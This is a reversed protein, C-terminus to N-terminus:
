SVMAYVSMFNIQKEIEMIWDQGVINAVNCSEGVLAEKEEDILPEEQTNALVLVQQDVCTINRAYLGIVYSGM